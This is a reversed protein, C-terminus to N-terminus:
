YGHDIAINGNMETAIFDDGERTPMGAMEIAKTWTCKAKIIAYAHNPKDGIPVPTPAEAKCVQTGSIATGALAGAATGTALLFILPTTLKM